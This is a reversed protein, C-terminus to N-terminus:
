LSNLLSNEFFGKNVPSPFLKWDAGIFKQKKRLMENHATSYSKKMSMMETEFGNPLLESRKKISLQNFVKLAEKLYTIGNDYWSFTNIAMTSMSALDDPQLCDISRRRAAADVTKTNLSGKAFENIDLNYTEHLMIIGKQAGDIIAQSSTNYNYAVNDDEFAAKRVVFTHFLLLPDILFIHNIGRKFTSDPWKKINNFEHFRGKLNIQHSFTSVKELFLLIANITQHLSERIKGLKHVIIQEKVFSEKTIEFNEFLEYDYRSDMFVVFPFGVLLLYMRFFYRIKRM